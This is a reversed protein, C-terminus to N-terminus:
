ITTYWIVAPSGTQRPEMDEYFPIDKESYPKGVTKVMYWKAIAHHDKVTKERSPQTNFVPTLLSGVYWIIASAVLATREFIGGLLYWPVM